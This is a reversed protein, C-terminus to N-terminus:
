HVTPPDASGAGVGDLLTRLDDVAIRGDIHLLAREIVQELEALSWGAADRQRLLQGWAETTFRVREYPAAVRLPPLEDDPEPAPSPSAATADRAAGGAARAALASLIRAIRDDGFGRAALYVRVAAPDTGAPFRDRLEALLADPVEGTAEEVGPM